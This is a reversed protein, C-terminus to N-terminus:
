SWLKSDLRRQKRLSKSLEQYDDEDLVGFLDDLDSYEKKKKSILLASQLIKLITKNLSLKETKAKQEVVKKLSEPFNRLTIANM